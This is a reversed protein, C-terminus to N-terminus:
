QPKLGNEALFKLTAQRFIQNGISGSMADFSHEAYPVEIYRIRIGADRASKAFDRAPEPRVLHDTSGTILLTPPAARSIHTFSSAYAYRDAVQDPTGGTYTTTMQTAFGKMQFDQHHYVRTLDIVPYLSVTAGIHPITGGCSSKLRGANALYPVNLVLNGGASDGFMAIRTSDGGFRAANRATWALGCGIQTPTVDWLHRDKSGLTYELAIVVYGQDALWRLDPQRLDLTGGVWGGGHVNVIIPALANTPGAPPRYIKLPLPVGQYSTYNVTQPASSEHSVSGIWLTRPLDIDLGEARALALYQSQIFISVAGALVAIATLVLTSGRRERWWRRFGIVGVALGFIAIWPGFNSVLLPGALGAFPITPMLAGLMALALVILFSRSVIHWARQGIKRIAEGM